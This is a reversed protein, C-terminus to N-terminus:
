ELTSRLMDARKPDRCARATDIQTRLILLACFQNLIKHLEPNDTSDSVLPAVFNCWMDMAARPDNIELMKTAFDGTMEAPQRGTLSIYLLEIFFHFDSPKIYGNERIATASVAWQLSAIASDLEPSVKNATLDVNTSSAHKVLETFWTAKSDKLERALEFSVDTWKRKPITKGFLSIAIAWKDKCCGNAYELAHV